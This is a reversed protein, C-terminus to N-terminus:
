KRAETESALHFHKVILLSHRQRAAVVLQIARELLELAEELGVVVAIERV